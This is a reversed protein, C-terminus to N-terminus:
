KKKKKLITITSMNANILCLYHEGCNLQKFLNSTAIPVQLLTVNRRQEVLFVQGLDSVNCAYDGGCDLKAVENGINSGSPMTLAVRKPTACSALTWFLVAAALCLKM